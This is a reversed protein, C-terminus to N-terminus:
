IKFCFWRVKIERSASNGETDYAKVKITHLKGFSREKFTYVYPYSTDTYKLEGDLYFEVKEIESEDSANVKVELEGIIWPNPSLFKFTRGLIYLNHSQPKQITISPPNTDYNPKTLPRYDGHHPIETDGIGNRDLDVGTYDSWYNGGLYPGGIINTGPTTTINWINNGDDEANITNNFYNNYILNNDANWLKIGCYNNNVICNTITCNTSSYLFIGVVNNNVSCNTIICHYSFGIEIGISANSVNQNEITVNTCNALIIQGAGLPVTYDNINKLYYVPKGNVTNSTGITHTNWYTIEYGWVGIGNDIMTTNTITCNTSHDLEIAAAVNNNASCNTISCNTSFSLLIGYKNNSAKVHEIRCHQVGHLMIGANYSRGSNQVTFGSITVYNATVKEVDGSLNGDIVTTNENEGILNISKNVIVNEYYTGSYVFIVDGDTANDIADQIKTYNGPGSGGVYLINGTSAKVNSPSVVMFTAVIVMLTIMLSSLKRM